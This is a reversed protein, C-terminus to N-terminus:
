KYASAHALLPGNRDKDSLIPPTALPWNIGIAPDNWRICREHEPFYYDNTKYLM